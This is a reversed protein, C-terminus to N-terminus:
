AKEEGKRDRKVQPRALTMGVEGTIGGIQADKLRNKPCSNAAGQWIGDVLAYRAPGARAVMM